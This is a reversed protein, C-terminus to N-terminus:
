PQWVPQMGSPSRNSDAQGKVVARGLRTCNKGNKERVKLSLQSRLCPQVQEWGPGRPEATVAGSAGTPAEAVQNSILQAKATAERPRSTAM